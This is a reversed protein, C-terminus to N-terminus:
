GKPKDKAVHSEATHMRIYDAHKEKVESSTAKEHASKHAELAKQHDAYKDTSFAQKSQELAAKLAAKENHKPTKRTTTQVSKPNEKAASEDKGYKREYKAMAADHDIAKMGLSEWHKPHIHNGIEERQYTDASQLTLKLGEHDKNRMHRAANEFTEKDQNATTHEAALRAVAQHNSHWDHKQRSDEHEKVATGDKRTYSRVHSKAFFESREDPSKGAAALHKHAENIHHHMDGFHTNNDEGRHNEWADKHARHADKHAQAAALHDLVSGSTKAQKSAKRAASTKAKAQRSDDHEQVVTGDQREYQRVHSKVIGHERRVKKIHSAVAQACEDYRKKKMFKLQTNTEKDLALEANTLRLKLERYKMDKELIAKLRDKDSATGNSSPTRKDNHEQVVTGDQKTYAKVHAKLMESSAHPNVGPTFSFGKGSKELPQTAGEALEIAKKLDDIETM